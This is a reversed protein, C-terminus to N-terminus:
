FKMRLGVRYSRGIADYLDPRTGPATVVYFPQGPVSSVRPPDTDMVNDIALSLKAEAGHVSLDYSAQLDLYAIAPVSNDDVDLPGWANDLKAHGVYRVRAGLSYPGEEYTASLLGKVKPVGSALDGIAGALKRTVGPLDQDFTALYSGLARATLSGSGLAVRYTVEVDWGSTALQSINAPILNIQIINGAPDRIIDNCGGRGTFCQDLVQASNLTSIAGKVKINYYDVSIGLDPVQSPRYIIGGTWTDAKEPQLDPNGQTNGLVIFERRTFPDTVTQAGSSGQTFLDALSPARIDRSRTVRLRLDQTIEDSLGVKWTVVRGSTSYDTLRAAANLELNQTLPKDKLLPVVTEVFAEKVKRAGDFPQFNGTAYLKAASFADQTSTARTHSYQAGVAISVDGAPLTFVTGSLDASVVDEDLNTLQYPHSGQVYQLAQASAAGNGLVNLPVCGNTPATLTSRCVIAGSAPDRVADVALNFNPILVNDHGVSSVEVEGHQYYAGWKWNEGFHGDLGVVGRWVSRENRSGPAARGLFMLGLNASTQGASILQQRIASDLYANDTKINLNGNRAYFITDNKVVSKGYSLEAYATIQDTLDYRAHMFLNGYTLANTLNRGAGYDLAGDGGWQLIGSRHGFNYPVPTGTPGVFQVGRLPGSVIVGGTALESPSAGPVTIQRPQGNGAVYAPNNVIAWNKWWDRDRARVIDPASSYEASAVVHGRGGLFSRGFTVDGKYTRNDGQDSVGTQANVALGQYDHDLVFNVVGAVADSGWAASAGGTVVEVRKILTTPLTNTDVGGSPTSEVVRRNDLLVLTRPSGLNRLNLLSLGAGSARVIPNTSSTPAGFSPLTNLYNAITTPMARRVEPVGVVTVPTPQQFGNAVIRSGGTVVVESVAAEEAPPASPAPQALAPHAILVAASGLLAANFRSRWRPGTPAPQASPPNARGLRSIPM